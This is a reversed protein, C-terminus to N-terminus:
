IFITVKVGGSVGSGGMVQGSAQVKDGKGEERGSRTNHRWASGSLTAKHTQGCSQHSALHTHISSASSPSPSGGESPNQAPTNLSGWSGALRQGWSLKGEVAWSPDPRGPQAVIYDDRYSVM